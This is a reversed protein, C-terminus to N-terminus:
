DAQEIISNIYKAAVAKSIRVTDAVIEISNYKVFLQKCYNHRYLHTTEPKAGNVTINRLGAKKLQLNLTFYTIRMFPQVGICCRDLLMQDIENKYVTRISNTKETRIKVTDQTIEIIRENLTFIENQRMGTKLATFHYMNYEDNLTAIYTGANVLLEKLQAPDIIM